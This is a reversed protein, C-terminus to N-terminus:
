RFLLIGRPPLTMERGPAPATAPLAHFKEGDLGKNKEYWEESYVGVSPFSAGDLRVKVEANSRNYVLLARRDATAIAGVAEHDTSAEVRERGLETTFMRFVHFAPHVRTFHYDYMGFFNNRLCFYYVREVGLRQLGDFTEALYVASYWSTNNKRSAEGGAGSYRWDLNLESLILPIKSGYVRRIVGVSDFVRQPSTSYIHWDFVDFTAQDRYLRAIAEGFSPNSGDPQKWAAYGTVPGAIRIGPAERRIKEAALRYLQVYDAIPYKVNEPENEIALLRIEPHRKLVAEAFEAKFDAYAPIDERKPLGFKPGNATNLWPPAGFGLTIYPEAGVSKVGDILADIETLNFKGPEPTLTERVVVTEGNKKIWSTRGTLMLRISDPKLAEILGRNRFGEAAPLPHINIGYFRPPVRLLPKGWDVKVTVPRGPAAAEGERPKGPDFWGLSSDDACALMAFGAMGALLLKHM